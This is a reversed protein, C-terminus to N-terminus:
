SRKSVVQVKGSNADILLITLKLYGDGSPKRVFYSVAWYRKPPVGRLVTRITHGQPEFDLQRQGIAVAQEESIRVQTRQCGRSVLFAGVLAIVLVIVGPAPRRSLTRAIGGVTPM